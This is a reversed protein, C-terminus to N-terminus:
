AVIKICNNTGDSLPLGIYENMNPFLHLGESNISLISGNNIDSGDEHVACLVISNQEEYLRFHVQDKPEAKIQNYVKFKM